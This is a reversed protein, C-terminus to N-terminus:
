KGLNYNVKTQVGIAVNIFDTAYLKVMDQGNNFSNLTILMRIKSSKLLNRINQNDFEIISRSIFPDTVRGQADVLASTLLDVDISDSALGSDKDYFVMKLNADFPFGNTVKFHLKLLEVIDLEDDEVGWDIDYLWQELLLNETRIELPIDIKVGVFMKGDKHIFNDFGTPGLPNVTVGGAFAIDAPVSSIFDVINSNAKNIVIKSTDWDGQNVPGNYVIAPLTLPTISGNKNIGDLDPKLEFPLGLNGVIKLEITPNEIKLGNLINEFGSIHTNFVSSPLPITRQGFYGVADELVLSKMQVTADYSTSAPAGGDSIIRMRYSLNNHGLVGTTLDFDLGSIDISGTDVGLQSGTLIFKAFQATDGIIKANLIGLEIQVPNNVPNDVSWFLKGEAITINKLQAGALTGMELNFEVAPAGSVFTLVEPEQDPIKILDAISAGAISDDEFIIRIGGDPDVTFTSDDAVIDNLELRAQLLPIAWEGRYNLDDINNFDVKDLCSIFLLPIFLLWLYIKKM